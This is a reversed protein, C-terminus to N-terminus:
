ICKWKTKFWGCLPRKRVKPIIWLWIKSTLTSCPEETSKLVRTRRKGSPCRSRGGSRRRRFGEVTDKRVIKSIIFVFLIAIIIYKISERSNFTFKVM